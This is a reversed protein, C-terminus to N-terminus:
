PIAAGSIEDKYIFIVSSCDPMLFIGTEKDLEAHWVEAGTTINLLVAKKNICYFLNNKVFMPRYQVSKDSYDWEYYWLRRGTSPDVAAIGDEGAAVLSNRSPSYNVQLLRSIGTQYKEGAIQKTLYPTNKDSFYSISDKAILDEGEWYSSQGFLDDYSFSGIGSDAFEFSWNLANNGLSLSYLFKESAYLIATDAVHYGSVSYAPFLQSPDSDFERKWLVKGNSTDVALLTFDDEEWLKKIQLKEKKEDYSYETKSGGTRVYLITDILAADLLYSGNLDQEILMWRLVGTATDLAVLNKNGPLMAMSGAYLPKALADFGGKFSMGQAIKMYNKSVILGSEMDVVVMGEGGDHDTDPEIMDSATHILITARGGGSSVSYDFGTKEFGFSVHESSSVSSIAKLPLERKPLSEDSHAVLKRYNIKGSLADISMVYLKVDDSPDLYTVVANNTDSAIFRHLFGNVLPYKPASQWLLKGNDLNVGLLKNELSIIMVDGSDTPAVVYNRVDDINIPVESVAGNSANIHVFKEEGFFGCGTNTPAIVNYNEDVSLPRRALLSDEKLDILAVDKDGALAIYKEHPPLYYWARQQKILDAHPRFKQLSLLQKGTEVDILPAIGDELLAVYKNRKGIRISNQTGKEILDTDYKLPKRWMETGSSLSICLDNSAYTLVLVTDFAKVSSFADQEIQPFRQKWLLRNQFVAFCKLSDEDSVLYLSDYILHHMGKELYEEIQVSWIKKGTATEYLWAYEDSQLFIYQGNGVPRMQKVEEPLEHKWVPDNKTQGSAITLFVFLLSLIRHM